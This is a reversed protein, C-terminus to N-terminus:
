KRRREYNEVVMKMGVKYRFLKDSDTEEFSLDSSELVKLISRDMTVDHPEDVYKKEYLNFQVIYKILADHLNFEQNESRLWWTTFTPIFEEMKNEPGIAHLAEEINQQAQSLEDRKQTLEEELDRPEARLFPYMIAAGINELVPLVRLLFLFVYLAIAYKWNLFIIVIFLAYGVFHIYGVWFPLVREGAESAVGSHFGRTKAQILRADYTRISEIIIYVLSIAMLLMSNMPAALIDNILENM